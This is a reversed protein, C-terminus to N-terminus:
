VLTYPEWEQQRHFDPVSFRTTSYTVPKQGAAADYRSFSLHWTQGAETKELPIGVLAQWRNQEPDTRVRSRLTLPDGCYRARDTEEGSRLRRITQDDPFELLLRWNNPTVHVERYATEGARRVFVELVDGREWMWQNHATATTFLDRDELTALTWLWGNQWGAQVAGHTVARGQPVTGVVQLPITPIARFAVEVAQWDDQCDEPTFAAPLSVLSPM